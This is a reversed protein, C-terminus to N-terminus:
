AKSGFSSRAPYVASEKGIEAFKLSQALADTCQSHVAPDRADCFHNPRMSSPSASVGTIINAVNGNGNCAVLGLVLVSVSISRITM